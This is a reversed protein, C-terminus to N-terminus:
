MEPLVYANKTSWIVTASFILWRIGIERYATTKYNRRLYVVDWTYCLTPIIYCTNYSREFVARIM